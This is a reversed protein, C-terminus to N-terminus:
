RPRNTSRVSGGYGSVYRAKADYFDQDRAVILFRLKKTTMQPDSAYFLKMEDRNTGTIVPVPHFTETSAFAERLPTSPLVVGDQIVRPVDLFWGGGM